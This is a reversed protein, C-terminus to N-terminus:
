AEARRTPAPATARRRTPSPRSRPRSAWGVSWRPGSTRSRRTRRSSTRSRACAQGPGPREAAASGSLPYRRHGRGPDERRPGERGDHRAHRDTADATPLGPFTPEDIVVLVDIPDGDWRWPTRSSATTPRITCRRISCATSCSSAAGTTSSTSARSGRPIEIVVEIPDVAEITGGTRISVALRHRDDLGADVRRSGIKELQAVVIQRQHALEALSDAHRLSAPSRLRDFAMAGPSFQQRALADIQRTSGPVGNRSSEGSAAQSMYSSSAGDAPM